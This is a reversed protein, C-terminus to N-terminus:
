SREDEAEDHDHAPGGPRTRRPAHPCSLSRFRSGHQIPSSPRNGGTAGDLRSLLMTLNSGLGAVPSQAFFTEVSCFSPTIEGAGTVRGPAGPDGNQEQIIGPVIYRSFPRVGATIIAHRPPTLAKRTNMISDHILIAGNVFGPVGGTPQVEAVGPEPPQGRDILAHEPVEGAIASAAAQPGILRYIAQLAGPPHHLPSAGRGYLGRQLELVGPIVYVEVRHLPLGLIDAEGRDQLLQPSQPRSYFM